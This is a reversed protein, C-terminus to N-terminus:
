PLAQQDRRIRIADEVLTEFEDVLPSRPRFTPRYVTLLYDVSISLPRAVIDPGACDQASFPNIIAVGLGQKVMACVGASSSTEIRLIRTVNAEAFIQDIRRRYADDNPFHICEVGDFDKPHLVAKRTLPHSKPLICVEQGAPLTRAAVNEVSPGPEALGLDYHQRALADMIERQGNSHITLRVGPHRAMFERCVPPLLTQAYTTLCIIQIHGLTHDKIASAARLIQDLGAYSRLVQSHLEAAQATPSLTRGQRNFLQLGLARELAKLERSITPQSTRLLEASRTVSGTTM